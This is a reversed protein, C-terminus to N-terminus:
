QVNEEGQQGVENVPVMQKQALLQDGGEVHDKNFVERAENPKFISGQVLRTVGQVQDLFRGRVLAETNFEVYVNEAERESLCAHNIETEFNAFHDGLAGSLYDLQGEEINARIAREYDGIKWPPVGFVGCIEQANLKRTAIFEADAQSVGIPEYKTGEALIATKHANSPGGHTRQWEERFAEKDKLVSLPLTLIGGPRGGNAYFKSAYEESQLAIGITRRAAAIPSLGMLGDMEMGRIHLMNSWPVTRTLGNMMTYTYIPGAWDGSAEVRVRDPRWFWLAQVQGRGNIEMEAYANGNTLISMAMLRKFRGASMYENASRRFLRYLYHDTAKERGAATKRYTLLPTRAIDGSLVRLCGWVAASQIATERTVAGPRGAPNYWFDEDPAYSRAGAAAQMRM